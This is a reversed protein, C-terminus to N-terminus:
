EIRTDSDDSSGLTSKETRPTITVYTPGKRQKRIRYIRLCLEVLALAVIAVMFWNLMSFQIAQVMNALFVVITVVVLGAIMMTRVALQGKALRLDHSLVAKEASQMAVARFSNMSERISKVDVPTRPKAPEPPNESRDALLHAPSSDSTEALEGGHTSMYADLFSTVPKRAPKRAPEPTTRRDSSRNQNDIKRRDAPSDETLTSDKSRDLLEALYRKVSDLHTDEADQDADASKATVSDAAVEAPQEAVNSTEPSQMAFLDALESRLEESENLTATASDTSENSLNTESADHSNRASLQQTERTLQQELQERAMMLSSRVDTATESLQSNQPLLHVNPVPPRDNAVSMGCDAWSDDSVGYDNGRGNMPLKDATKSVAHLEKRLQAILLDRSELQQQLQCIQEAHLLLDLAARRHEAADTVQVMPESHSGPIADQISAPMEPTMLSPEALVAKRAAAARSFAIAAAVCATVFIIMAILSPLIKPAASLSKPAPLSIEPKKAIPSRGSDSNADGPDAAAVWNKVEAMDITGIKLIPTAPNTVVSDPSTNAVALQETPIGEPTTDSDNNQVVNLPVGSKVAYAPKAPLGFPLTFPLASVTASDSKGAPPQPASKQESGNATVTASMSRSQPTENIVSVVVNETASLGGSNEALIVLEPPEPVDRLQITIDFTVTGTSLSKLAGVPLGDELLGASFQELFPDQEPRNEDALVLVQFKPHTEFDMQHIDAIRISGDHADVTFVPRDQPEALRFNKLRLQHDLLRSIMTEAPLNEYLDYTVLVRRNSSSATADEALLTGTVTALLLTFLSTMVAALRM